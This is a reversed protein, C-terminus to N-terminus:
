TTRWAGTLRTCTRAAPMGVFQSSYTQRRIPATRARASPPIRTRGIKSLREGGAIITELIRRIDPNPSSRPHKATGELRTMRDYEHHLGGLLPTAFLSGDARIPRHSPANQSRCTHGRRTTCRSSRVGMPGPFALNKVSPVRPCSKGDPNMLYDFPGSAIMHSAAEPAANGATPQLQWEPHKVPHFARRHSDLLIRM